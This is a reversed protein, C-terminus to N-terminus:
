AQKEQDHDGDYSISVKSVYNTKGDKATAWELRIIHKGGTAAALENMRMRIEESAYSSAMNVRQVQADHAKQEKSKEPPAPPKPWHHDNFARDEEDTVFRWHEDGIANVDQCGPFSIGWMPSEGGDGDDITDYVELTGRLITGGEYRVDIVRGADAWSAGWQDGFENEGTDTM